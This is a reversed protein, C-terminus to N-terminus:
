EEQEAAVLAEAQELVPWGDFENEKVGPPLIAGLLWRMLEQVSRIQTGFPVRGAGRFFLGQNM